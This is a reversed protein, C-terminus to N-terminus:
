RRLASMMFIAIIVLAAGGYQLPSLWDGLMLAAFAITTLPELNMMMAMDVTRLRSFAGFYCINGVVFFLPVSLLAAWGAPGDPWALTGGLALVTLMILTGMVMMYFTMVRPDTGRLVRGGFLTISGIVLAPVTALLLGRLSHGAVDVKLAVAIGIFALVLAAIKGPTLPAGETFRTAIGVLIPFTYFILVALSVPILRISSFYAISSATVGVGLALAGLLKRRPLAFGRGTMAVLAALALSGLVFRATIVTVPDSGADYSLRGVIVSMSFSAAAAAILAFGILRDRGVGHPAQMAPAITAPKEITM